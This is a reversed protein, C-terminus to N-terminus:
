LWVKMKRIIYAKEWSGNMRYTHTHTHDTMIVREPWMSQEETWPIESALISSPNGNAM